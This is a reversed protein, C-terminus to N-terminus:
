FFQNHSHYYRNCHYSLSLQLSYSCHCSIFVIMFVIVINVFFFIVVYDLMFEKGKRLTSALMQNEKELHDSYNGSSSSATIQSTPIPPAPPLSFLSSLSNPAAFDADTRKKTGSQTMPATEAADDTETKTTTTTTTTTATETETTTDAATTTTTDAAPAPAPEARPTVAKQVVPKPVLKLQWKKKTTGLGHSGLTSEPDLTVDDFTKVEYDEEKLTSEPTKESACRSLLSKLLTQVTQSPSVLVRQLTPESGISVVMLLNFKAETDAAEETAGAAATKATSFRLTANPMVTGKQAMMAEDKEVVDLEWNQLLSGLGFNALQHSDQLVMGGKTKVTYCESSTHGLRSFVIALVRAITMMRDVKYVKGEPPIGEFEGNDPFTFCVLTPSFCESAAKMELNFSKYLPLM